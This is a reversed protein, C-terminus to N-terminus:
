QPKINESKVIKSWRAREADIRQRFREPSGGVPEGVSAMRAVFEPSKLADNLATNIRTIVSQPTGKPVVLGMWSGMDYDGVGLERLTPVDPLMSSRKESTVALANIRGGKVQPAASTVVDIMVDVRGAALDTLAPGSGKYPVHQWKVGEQSQFHEGMMQIMSGTGASAMNLGSKSDKSAKLLEPVSKVKLTPAVVIVGPQNLFWVVPELKDMPDFNRSAYVYPSVTLPGSGGVGITYGDPAANAVEELALLGGVGPKNEVVFNGGLAKTLADAMLRGALDTGGGPAFGVLVRVPKTPYADQAQVPASLGIVALGGLAALLRRRFMLKM